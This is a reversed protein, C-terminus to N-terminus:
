GQTMCGSVIESKFGAAALDLDGLEVRLRVECTHLREDVRGAIARATRRRDSVGTRPRGVRIIGCLLM